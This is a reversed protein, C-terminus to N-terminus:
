QLLAFLITTITIIETLHTHWGGPTSVDFILEARDSGNTEDSNGMERSQLLHRSFDRM